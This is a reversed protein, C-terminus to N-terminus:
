LIRVVMPTTSQDPGLSPRFRFCDNCIQMVVGLTHFAFITPNCIRVNLKKETNLSFYINAIKIRVAQRIWKAPSM